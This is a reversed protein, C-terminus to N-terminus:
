SGRQKFAMPWCVDVWDRSGPTRPSELIVVLELADQEPHENMLLVGVDQSDVAICGGVRPILVARFLPSEHTCRQRKSGGQGLSLGSKAQYTREIVSTFRDQIRKTSCRM